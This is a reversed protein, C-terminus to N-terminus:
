AVGKASEPRAVRGVAMPLLPLRRIICRTGKEAEQALFFERSYILVELLWNAVSAFRIILIFPLLFVFFICRAGSRLSRTAALRSCASRESSQANRSVEFM